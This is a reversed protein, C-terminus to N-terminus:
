REVTGIIVLRQKQHENQHLEQWCDPGGEGQAQFVEEDWSDLAGTNSTYGLAPNISVMSHSDHLLFQTMDQAVDLM